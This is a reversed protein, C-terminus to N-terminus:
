LDVGSRNKVEPHFKVIKTSPINDRLKGFSVDHIEAIIELRDEGIIGNNASIVQNATHLAIEFRKNEDDIKRNNEEISQIEYNYESELESLERQKKEIEYRLNDLRNKNLKRELYDEYDATRNPIFAKSKLYLKKSIYMSICVTEDKRTKKRGMPTAM